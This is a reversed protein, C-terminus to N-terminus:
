RRRVTKLPQSMTPDEEALKQIAKSDKLMMKCSNAVVEELAKDDALESGFASKHLKVAKGLILTDAIYDLAQTVAANIIFVPM